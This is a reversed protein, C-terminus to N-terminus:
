PLLLRVTGLITEVADLSPFVSDTAGPQEGACGAGGMSGGCGFAPSVFSTLGVALAAALLLSTSVHRLTRQM